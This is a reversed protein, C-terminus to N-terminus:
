VVYFYAMREVFWFLGILGIILSGPVTVFRKYAAQDSFWVTLSVYAVILIALQGLEIGVNFWLLASWYQGTPLGFDALLRAFGLGHLLGFAFVLPLRARSIQNTFLNEIAVYAISLAILPEVVQPPLSVLGLAGLCLTISHAFTFMTAQLILPKLRLSMFFLGLIFLIHDLGKPIIHLFGTQAYVKAVSWFSSRTFVQTLSFPDTPKDDALWQHASWHYEEADLDIQRVRVAQEGFRLPYYWQLETAGRPIRGELWIVSARPVKTYGPPAIEINGVSLIIVQGDATLIVGELLEAHFGRFAKKLQEGPLERLTDYDAANPAHRTNRYRGNIGTLLAEISARIEISTRGDSFVSIDVLAPKVVDAYVSLHLSIFILFLSIKQLINQLRNVSLSLVLQIPIRARPNFKGLFM